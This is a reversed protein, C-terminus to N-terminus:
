RQFTYFPTTTKKKVSKHPNLLIMPKEFSSYDEPDTIADYGRKSFEKVVEDNIAKDMMTDNLFKQYEKNRSGYVLLKLHKQDLTMRDYDFTREQKYIDKIRVDGYKKVLYDTVERGKAVKIDKTLTYVHNYMKDPDYGWLGDFMEDYSHKDETSPSAYIRKKLDEDKTSSLRYFDTGKRIVYADPKKRNQAARKKGAPTLTGDKNRYRRVGWKQGKVGHHYFEAM